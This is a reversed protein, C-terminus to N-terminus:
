PIRGKNKRTSSALSASEGCVVSLPLNDFVHDVVTRVHALLWTESKDDGYLGSYEFERVITYYCHHIWDLDHYEDRNFQDDWSQKSLIAERVEKFLNLYALTDNNISPIEQKNYHKVENLDVITFVSAAEYTSDWPDLIFSHCFNLTSGFMYVEEEAKRGTSELIWMLEKDM